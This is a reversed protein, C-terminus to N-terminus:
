PMETPEGGLVRKLQDRAAQRFQVPGGEPRGARKWLKMELEEVKERFLRAKRDGEKELAGFGIGEHLLSNLVDPTIKHYSCYRQFWTDIWEGANRIHISSEFLGSLFLWTLLDRDGQAAALCEVFQRQRSEDPQHSYQTYLFVDFVRKSKFSFPAGSQFMHAEPPSDLQKRYQQAFGAVMRAYPHDDLARVFLDVAKELNAPEKAMYLRRYITVFSRIEEDTLSSKFSTKRLGTPTLHGPGSLTGPGEKVFASELLEKYDRIFYGLLRTEDDSLTVEELPIPSPPEHDPVDVLTLYDWLQTQEIEAGTEDEFYNSLSFFRNEDTGDARKVDEQREERFLHRFKLIDRSSHPSDMELVLELAAQEVLQLTETDLFLCRDGFRKQERDLYRIKWFLM